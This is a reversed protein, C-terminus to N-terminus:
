SDVGQALEAQQLRRCFDVAEDVFVKAAPTVSRSDLMCIAFVM